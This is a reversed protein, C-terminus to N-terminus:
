LSLKKARCFCPPEDGDEGKLRMDQMDPLRLGKLSVIRRKNLFPRTGDHVVGDSLYGKEATICRMGMGKLSSLGTPLAPPVTVRFMKRQMGLPVSILKM